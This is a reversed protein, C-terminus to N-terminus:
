RRHELSRSRSSRRPREAHPVRPLPRQREFIQGGRAVDGELPRTSRQPGCVASTLSWRRFMPTRCRLHRCSLARLAKSLRMSCIGTRQHASIKAARCTRAGSRGGDRGSRPVDHLVSQLYRPGASDDHSSAHQRAQRRRKLRDISSACSASRRPRIFAACVMRCRRGHVRSRTPSEAWVSCTSGGGTEM